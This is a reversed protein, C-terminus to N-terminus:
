HRNDNTERRESEKLRNEFAKSEENIKKSLEKIRDDLCRMLDTLREVIEAWYGEVEGNKDLETSKNRWASEVLSRMRNLTDHISSLHGTVDNDENLFPYTQEAIRIVAKSVSNVERIIANHLDEIHDIARPKDKYATRIFKGLGNAVNLFEQADNHLEKYGLLKENAEIMDPIKDRLNKVEQNMVRLREAREGRKVRGEMFDNIGRTITIISAAVQVGVLVEAM